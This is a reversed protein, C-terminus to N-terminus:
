PSTNSTPPAEAMARSLMIGSTTQEKLNRINPMPDESFSVGPVRTPAAFSESLIMIVTSDTTNASRNQNATKAAKAALQEMTDKSYGEPKDMIKTHTLRIFNM